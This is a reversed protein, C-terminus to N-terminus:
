FNFCFKRLCAFQFHPLVLQKTKSVPELVSCQLIQICWKAYRALFRFGAVNQGSGTQALNTFIPWNKALASIRDLAVLLQQKATNDVQLHKMLDDCSTM